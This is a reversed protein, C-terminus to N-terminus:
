DIKEIIKEAMEGTMKGLRGEWGKAIMRGTLKKEVMRSNSKATMQLRNTSVKLFRSTASTFFNSAINLQARCLILVFVELLSSAFSSNLHMM